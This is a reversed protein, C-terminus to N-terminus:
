DDGSCERKGCVPYYFTAFHIFSLLRRKNGETPQQLLLQLIEDPDQLIKISFLRARPERGPAACSAFIAVIVYRRYEERYIYRVYKNHVYSYNAKEKSRKEIIIGKKEGRYACCPLPRPYFIRSNGRYFEFEQVCYMSLSHFLTMIEQM